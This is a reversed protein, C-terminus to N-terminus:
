WVRRIDDLDELGLDELEVTDVIDSGVWDIEFFEPFELIVGAINDFVNGSHAPYEELEGFRVADVLRHFSPPADAIVDVGVRVDFTDGDDDYFIGDFEIISM